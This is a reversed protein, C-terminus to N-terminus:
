QATREHLQFTECLDRFSAASYILLDDADTKFVQVRLGNDGAIRFGNDRVAERCEAETLPISTM